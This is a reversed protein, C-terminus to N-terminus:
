DTRAFESGGQRMGWPLPTDDTIATELRHGPTRLPHDYWERRGVALYRLADAPNSSWDHYPKDDYRQSAENWKRHYSAIASLGREMRDDAEAQSEEDVPCPLPHTNFTCMRIFARTAQIGPQIDAVPLIRIGRLGLKEAQQQLNEAMGFREQAADHPWIHEAYTYPKALMRKTFWDLDVGSGELYDIIRPVGNQGIQAFWVVCADTKGIDWATFVPLRPDYPYHDVRGQLRAELMHRAYFAGPFGADWLSMYEQAILVAAEDDGRERAIERREKEIQEDTFVGCERYSLHSYFWDPSHKALRECMGYFHNRGRVTSNFLAWGGNEEVIPRLYAWSNPNSIAYESFFLGV